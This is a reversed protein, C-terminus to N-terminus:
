AKLKFEVASNDRCDYVHSLELNTGEVLSTFQTLTREKYTPGRSRLHDRVLMIMDLCYQLIGGEGFNPLLPQPAKTRQADAGPAAYQIVYEHLILRTTPKMVKQINNLIIKAKDDAWDHIISKLYYVDCGAKPSENLFDLPIYEVRGQAVLEPAEQEWTTKAQELVAPVDQLVVRIHPHAKAVQMSMRGLGSGVDCLVTGEPLDKWPYDTVIAEYHMIMNFGSMAKDFRKGREPDTEYYQWLSGKTNFARAFPAAETATTPGLVPDSIVDYLVAGSRYIEDTLFGQLAPMNGQSLLTISLRNNAYVDPAVERFVHKTVLFRLVRDLKDEDTHTIKAIESVHLGNPKGVLADAVQANAAISMCASTLHSMSLLTTSVDPPNILTNLQASAGQVTRIALRITPDALADDIAHKNTDELTPLTYGHKAYGTKITDVASTILAVLDDLQKYSPDSM